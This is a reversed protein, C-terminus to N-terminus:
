AEYRGETVALVVDILVDIKTIGEEVNQDAIRNTIIDVAYCLEVMVQKQSGNIKFNEQEVIIM